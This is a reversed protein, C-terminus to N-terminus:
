KWWPAWVEDLSGGGTRTRENALFFTARVNHRSLVEDVFPAIEMHGTDFTLYLPKACAPPVDIPERLTEHVGPELVFAHGQGLETQAVVTLATTSSLVMCLWSLFHKIVARM